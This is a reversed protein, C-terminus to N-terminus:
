TSPLGLRREQAFRSAGVRLADQTIVIVTRVAALQLSPVSVAVGVPPFFAASFCAPENRRERGAFRDPLTVARALHM